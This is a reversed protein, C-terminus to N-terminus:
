DFYKQCNGYAFISSDAQRNPLHWTGLYSYSFNGSPLLVNFLQDKTNNFCSMRGLEGGIGIAITECYNQLWSSDSPDTDTRRIFYTGTERYIGYEGVNTEIRSALREREIDGIYSDEWGLETQNLDDIHVIRFDVPNSFETARHEDEGSHYVGGYFDTTCRYSGSYKSVPDSTGETTQGTAVSSLSLLMLLGSFCLYKSRKKM